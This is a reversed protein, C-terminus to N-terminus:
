RNKHKKIEHFGNEDEYGAPATILEIVIWLIFLMLYAAIYIM